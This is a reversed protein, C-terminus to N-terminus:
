PDFGNKFILNAARVISISSQPSGSPGQAPDAFDSLLTRVGTARDVTCVATLASACGGVYLTGDTGVVVSEPGRFGSVVTGQSANSWDSLVTRVGPPPGILDVRFLAGNTAFFTDAVLISRDTDLAIAHGADNGRAGQALNGFDSLLTRAGTLRNVQFLAGCDGLEWCQSGAGTWLPGEADGIVINDDADLMVSEPSAHAGAGYDTIQTRFGNNADVSWLGAHSGGGGQGRDTVLISGDIDLGVGYPTHWPPGQLVNSADSLLTRTGDPLVKFLKGLDGSHGDTAYINGSADAGLYFVSGTPGQLANAFDSVVTRMGTTTDVKVILSSGSFVNAVLDGLKPALDPITFDVDHTVGQDTNPRGCGVNFGPDARASQGTANFVYVQSLSSCVGFTDRVVFRLFDGTSGM